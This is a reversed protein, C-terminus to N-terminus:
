IVKNLMQKFKLCYDKYVSAIEKVGSSISQTSLEGVSAGGGMRPIDTGLISVTKVYKLLHFIRGFNLSHPNM